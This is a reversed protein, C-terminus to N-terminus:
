PSCEYIQKKVFNNILFIRGERKDFIIREKNGIYVSGQELGLRCERMSSTLLGGGQRRVQNEMRYLRAGITMPKINGRKDSAGRYSGPKGLTQDM